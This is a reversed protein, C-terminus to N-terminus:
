RSPRSPPSSSGPRPPRCAWTSCPLRLPSLHKWTRERPSKPTPTTRAARGTLARRILDTM